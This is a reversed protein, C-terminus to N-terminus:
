KLVGAKAQRQAYYWQLLIILLIGIPMLIAAPGELSAPRDSIFQYCFSVVAGLFSLLFAPAAYRSRVLLLVAGALSLWVGVAFGATAWAPQAQYWAYAEADLGMSEFYDLGGTQTMLYDYAGFANWLLSLIGVVWLHTPVKAPQATAM